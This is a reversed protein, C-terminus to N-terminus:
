RSPRDPFTWVWILLRDPPPVVAIISDLLNFLKSYDESFQNGDESKSDKIRCNQCFILSREEFRNIIELKEPASLDGFIIERSRSNVAMQILCEVDLSFTTGICYTLIYGYPPLSVNLFATQERENLM